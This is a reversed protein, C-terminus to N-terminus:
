MKKEKKLKEEPFGFYGLEPRAIESLKPLIVWVDKLAQVLTDYNWKIRMTKEKRGTTQYSPM